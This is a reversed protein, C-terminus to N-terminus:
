LLLQFREPEIGSGGVAHYTAACHSGDLGVLCCMAKDSITYDVSAEDIVDQVL